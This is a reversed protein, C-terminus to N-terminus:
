YGLDEVLRIWAGYVAVVGWAQVLGFGLCVWARFLELGLCDWVRSTCFVAGFGLVRWVSFRM